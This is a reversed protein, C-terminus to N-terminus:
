ALEHPKVTGIESGDPKLRLSGFRLIKAAAPARVPTLIGLTRRRFDLADLLGLGLFRGNADELGILLNKLRPTVTQTVTRAKLQEQALGLGPFGVPVPENLMLGLTSGAMEAYYVKAHPAMSQNLFRLIHAAVPVGTGLWTGVIAIDDFAYTTPQSDRFYASFRFMRRQARYNPPKRGIVAPIPPTHIRCATRMRLPQLFSRLEENRQLAVVHTPTLLDFLTHYLRRAGSGEIYGSLDVIVLSDANGDAISADRPQQQELTELERFAADALRRIGVVYDLQFGPPSTSGVFALARPALESLARVSSEAIGLGICGPPGIESQGLDADVIAVRRGARVARNVLQRTFTTKGVDTGGLMVTLGGAAAIADLTSEWESFSSESGPGEPLATM